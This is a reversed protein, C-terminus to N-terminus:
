MRKWSVLQYRQPAGEAGSVGKLTARWRGLFRPENPAPSTTMAWTYPDEQWGTPSEYLRVTAAFRDNNGGLIAEWSEVRAFRSTSNTEADGPSIYYRSQQDPVGNDGFSAESTRDVWEGSVYQKGSNSETKIQQPSYKRAYLVAFRLRDATPLGSEGFDSIRADAFDSLFMDRLVRAPKVSPAATASKPLIPVGAPTTAAPPIRNQVALFAAFAGVAVATMGAVTRVVAKQSAGPLDISIVPTKAGPPPVASESMDRM